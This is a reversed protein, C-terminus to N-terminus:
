HKWVTGNFDPLLGLYRDQPALDLDITYSKPTRGAAAVACCCAVLLASARMNFVGGVCLLNRVEPCTCDM